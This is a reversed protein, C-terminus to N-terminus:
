KETIYDSLFFQTYSFTATFNLYQTETHDTTITLDGLSVPILDNFRIVRVPEQNKGRITLEAGSSTGYDSDINEKGRDFWRERWKLVQNYNNPFGVLTIWEYLASYNDMREDVLVSVVLEGYEVMDGVRNVVTFPTGQRVASLTISPVNAEKCWFTLGPIKDVNLTFGTIILPNITSPDPCAMNDTLFQESM